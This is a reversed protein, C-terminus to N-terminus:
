NTEYKEKKGTGKQRNNKKEMKKRKRGTKGDKEKEV